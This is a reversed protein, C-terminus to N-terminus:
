DDDDRFYSGVSTPILPSDFGSIQSDPVTE